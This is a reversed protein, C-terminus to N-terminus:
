CGLLPPAPAPTNVKSKIVPIKHRHCKIKITFILSTITIRTYVDGSSPRSFPVRKSPLSRPHGWVGPRHPQEALQFPLSVALVKGAETEKDPFHAPSSKRERNPTPPQPVSHPRPSATHLCPTVETFSPHSLLAM